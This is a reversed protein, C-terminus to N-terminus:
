LEVPPAHYRVLRRVLIRIHAILLWAESSATSAEWDKALRRSRGLWAFTREIVWRRPLVEFGSAKDSRKIIESRWEGHGQMADRLKPGAYGGDAFVLRLWPWANRISRLVLPAGDRDQVDAPHVVAGVMLGLTDTAIHRKRGKVRKGADFGRPGGSETTKVSQSDIVGATPSAERGELERAAMVLVHNIARLLGRDRWDYFYRQVTTFPPFDRPLQSWQCGTSAIYQIANVVARLDTSRPRGLRRPGPLLPAILGWERDTLDSSYGCGRRAHDRRATETWAM